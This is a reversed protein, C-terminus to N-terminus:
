GPVSLGANVLGVVVGAVVLAKWDASLEVWANRVLRVFEDTQLCPKSYGM